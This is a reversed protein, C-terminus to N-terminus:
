PNCTVDRSDHFGRAVNLISSSRNIFVFYLNSEEIIFNAVVQCIAWESVDFVKSEACVFARPIEM